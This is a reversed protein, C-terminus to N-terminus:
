REALARYVADKDNLDVRPGMPKSIWAFPKSPPENEAGLSTALLESVLQGMGRGELRQRRKLERLVAADIDIPIRPM